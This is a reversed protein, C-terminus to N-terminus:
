KCIIPTQFNPNKPKEDFLDGEKQVQKSAAIYVCNLSNLSKLYSKYNTYVNTWPGAKVPSNRGSFILLIVRLPGGKWGAVVVPVFQGQM